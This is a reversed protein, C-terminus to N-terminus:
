PRIIMCQQAKFALCDLNVPCKNCKPQRRACITAHFYMIAQNVVHDKQPTYIKALAWLKNELCAEGTWGELIQHRKLLLKVNAGLIAYHKNIHHFITVATSSEIGSFAIVQDFNIQLENNYHDCIFQAM